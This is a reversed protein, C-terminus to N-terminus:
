IIQLSISACRYAISYHIYLTCATILAVDTQGSPHISMFVFLFRATYATYLCYNLDFNLRVSSVISRDIPENRKMGNEIRVEGALSGM